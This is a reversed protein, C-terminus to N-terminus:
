KVFPALPGDANISEKLVEFPITVYQPGAAYPGVQYAEFTIALAKRTITWNKYNAPKPAAGTAIWSETLSASAGQAKAQKKLDDVCYASITKLYTAAPQFLDALKLLKGNKLDYNVTETNSNPHAAGRSYGSTVFSISILDDNAVAVTYSVSLDSRMDSDAPPEEEEAAIAALGKKFEGIRKFAIGRSVGNFRLMRPDTSGSLQPYVADIDSKLKEDSEKVRKAVLELTGSFNIPQESLSFKTQKPSNPKAWTGEIRVAAPDSTDWIGRFLGTQGGGSDFESLEVNGKQDVTGKLTIPKGVKLYSYSGSLDSGTHVLKMQLDNSAGITGAFIKTESLPGPNPTAETAVAPPSDGTANLPQGPMSQRRCGPFALLVLAALALTSNVFIRKM